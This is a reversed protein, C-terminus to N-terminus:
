GRFGAKSRSNGNSPRQLHLACGQWFGKTCRASRAGAPPPTYQYLWTEYADQRWQAPVPPHRDARHQRGAAGPRVDRSLRQDRAAPAGVRDRGPWPQSGGGGRGRGQRDPQGARGKSTWRSAGASTSASRASWV